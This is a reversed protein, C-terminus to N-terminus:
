NKSMKCKREENYKDQAFGRFRGCGYCRVTKYYNTSIYQYPSVLVCWFHTKGSHCAMLDCRDNIPVPLQKVGLQACLPCERHGHLSHARPM